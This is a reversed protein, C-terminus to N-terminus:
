LEESGYYATANVTPLSSIVEGDPAVAVVDFDNDLSL